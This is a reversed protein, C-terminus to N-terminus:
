VGKQRKTSKSGEAWISSCSQEDRQVPAKPSKKKTKGRGTTKTKTVTEEKRKAKPNRCPTSRERRRTLCRKKVWWHKSM